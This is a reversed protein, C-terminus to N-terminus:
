TARNPAASPSPGGVCVPLGQALKREPLRLSRKARGCVRRDSVCGRSIIEIMPQPSSRQPDPQPADLLVYRGIRQQGRQERLHGRIMWIPNSHPERSAISFEWVWDRGGAVM